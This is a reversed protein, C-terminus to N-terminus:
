YDKKPKSEGLKSPHKEESESEGIYEGDKNYYLIRAGERVSFGIYRGDKDYYETMREKEEKVAGGGSVGGSPGGGVAYIFLMFVGGIIIVIWTFMQLSLIGMIVAGLPFYLIFAISIVEILAGKWGINFSIMLGLAACAALATAFSLALTNKLYEPIIETELIALFVVALVLMGGLFVLTPFRQKVESM